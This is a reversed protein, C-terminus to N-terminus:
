AQFEGALTQRQVKGTPGKPIDDAIHVTRPVKFAALRESCHDRLEDPTAPGGLVVVAEVVEGWKDDPRGFAVADLVAPHLLLAEDIERPAIKEGGRNIMEKVRGELTLYGDSSLRGVDGTRFWGDRFSEANAAENDLYGDVVGPGRVTVEGPTEAGLSRWEEDVIRIETGTPTGVTGPRREGPPLPNSAMQHAAETMGYAEVIPVEFREELATWLACVADRERV